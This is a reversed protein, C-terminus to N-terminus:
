HSCVDRGTKPRLGGLARIEDSSIIARGKALYRYTIRLHVRDTQWSVWKSEGFDSLYEVQTNVQAATLLPAKSTVIFAMAPLFNQELYGHTELDELINRKFWFLQACM